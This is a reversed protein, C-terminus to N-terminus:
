RIASLSRRIHRISPLMVSGKFLLASLKLRMNSPRKGAGSAREVASPAGISPRAALLPEGSPNLGPSRREGKVLLTENLTRGGLSDRKLQPRIARLAGHRQVITRARWRM